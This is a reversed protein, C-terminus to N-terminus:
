WVDKHYRGGSTLRAIIEEAEHGAYGGERMVITHLARHVDKAMGKADGCVYVCGKNNGVTGKIVGYVAASQQVLLDQVYVKKDSAGNPQRSYAVHYGTLVGEAVM